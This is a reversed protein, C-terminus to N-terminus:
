ARESATVRARRTMDAVDTFPTETRTAVLRQAFDESLGRIQRLGLRLAPREPVDGPELSCHWFSATVDAPLVHVGNRQADQILQSPQYFGMPQSNLLACTFTEPHHCKLWSSIYALLAFSYSHSEPFGYEGFGQIQRFIRAAFEDSYGNKRM